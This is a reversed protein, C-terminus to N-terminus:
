IIKAVIHILILGWTWSVSQALEFGQQKSLDWIPAWICKQKLETNRHNILMFACNKSPMYLTICDLKCFKDVKSCIYHLILSHISSWVTHKTPGPGTNVFCKSSAWVWTAQEFGLDTNLHMKINDRYKQLQIVYFWWKWM